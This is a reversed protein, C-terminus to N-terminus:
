LIDKDVMVKPTKYYVIAGYLNNVEYGISMDPETVNTHMMKEFAYMKSTGLYNKYDNELGKWWSAYMNVLKNIHVTKSSMCSSRKLGGPPLRVRVQRRTNRFAWARPPRQYLDQQNTTLNADSPDMTILGSEDDGLAQVSPAVYDDNFALMFGNGGTGYAWGEVPNNEVDLMSDHHEPNAGSNALTRNQITLESKLFVKVFAQHLPIRAIPTYNANSTYAFIEYLNIRSSGKKYDGAGATVRAQLQTQIDSKLGALLGDAVSEWTPDAGPAYVYTFKEKDDGLFYFVRYHISSVVSAGDHDQEAKFSNFDNGMMKALKRILAHFVVRMVKDRANNTHGVYVCKDQTVVGGKETRILAGKSAYSTKGVRVPKKFRGYFRGTTVYRNKRGAALRPPARRRGSSRTGRSRFTLSPFSSSRTGRSILSGVARRVHPNALLSAARSAMSSQSRTVARSRPKAVARSGAGPNMFGYASYMKPYSKTKLYDVSRNLHGGWNKATTYAGKFDGTALQGFAEAPGAAFPVVENELVELDRRTGKPLYQWYRGTKRKFASFTDRVTM